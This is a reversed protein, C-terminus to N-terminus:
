IRVIRVSQSFGDPSLIRILYAGVPLDYLDFTLTHNSTPCEKQYYIRGAVDMVWIMVPRSYTEPFDIRIQDHFPNPYISIGKDILKEDSIGVPLYNSFLEKTTYAWFGEQTATPLVWEQCVREVALSNAYTIAWQQGRDYSWAGEKWSEWTSWTMNFQEDYKYIQRYTTKWKL